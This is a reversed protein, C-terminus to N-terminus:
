GHGNCGLSQGDGIDVGLGDVVFYGLGLGDDIVVDEDPGSLRPQVDMVLDDAIAERDLKVPRQVVVLEHGGEEM